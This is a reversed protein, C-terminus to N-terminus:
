VGDGASMEATSMGTNSTKAIGRSLSYAGSSGTVVTVWLNSDIKNAALLVTAAIVGAVALWFETTLYGSKM